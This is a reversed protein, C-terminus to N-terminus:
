CPLAQIQCRDLRSKFNLFTINLIQWTGEPVTLLWDNVKMAETPIFLFHQRKEKPVVIGKNVSIEDRIVTGCILRWGYESGVGLNDECLKLTRLLGEYLGSTRMVIRTPFGASAISIPHDYAIDILM